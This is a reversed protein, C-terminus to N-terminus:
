NLNKQVVSRESMNEKGEVVVGRDHFTGEKGRKRRGGRGRRRVM